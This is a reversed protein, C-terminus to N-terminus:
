KTIFYFVASLVVLPSISFIVKQFPFYVKNGNKEKCYFHIKAGAFFFISGFIIGLMLKDAGWLKNLPHGIIESYYLPAVILLYYGFIVSIKRFKYRINKRELWDITWMIVSVTLGGIWLGTIADDVGLYRSLGVGAGVAVTCVPCVAQAPLAAFCTFLCFLATIIKRKRRM